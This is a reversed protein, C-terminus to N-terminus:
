KKNRGCGRVIVKAKTNCPCNHKKIMSLFRQEFESDSMCCSTPDGIFVCGTYADSVVHAFDDPCFCAYLQDGAFFTDGGNAQQTLEADRYWGCFKTSAPICDPPMTPLAALVGFSDTTSCPIATCGSALGDPSVCVTVAALPFGDTYSIDYNNYANKFPSTFTDNHIQASYLADDKPALAYAPNASNNSFRVLPGVTVNELNTYDTYIAGGDQTATNSDFVTSGSIDLSGASCYVAGGNASKNDSFQCSQLTMVGYTQIAGGTYNTENDSFFCDYLNCVGSNNIVGYMTRCNSFSSSRITTTSSAMLFLKQQTTYATDDGTFSSNSINTIGSSLMINSDASHFQVGNLTLTGGKYVEIAYDATNDNDFKINRLSLTGVVLFTRDGVTRKITKM